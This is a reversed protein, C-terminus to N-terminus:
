RFKYKKFTSVIKCGTIDIYYVYDGIIFQLLYGDLVIGQCSIREQLYFDEVNEELCISLAKLMSVSYNNLIYLVNDKNIGNFVPISYYGYDSKYTIINGYLINGDIGKISIFSNSKFSRRM